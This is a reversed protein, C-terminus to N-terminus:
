PSYPSQVTGATTYTYPPLGLYMNASLVVEYLIDIPNEAFEMSNKPLVDIVSQNKPLIDEAIFGKPKIDEVSFNKPM